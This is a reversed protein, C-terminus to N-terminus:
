AFNIERCYVLCLGTLICGIQHEVKDPQFVGPFSVEFYRYFDVGLDEPQYIHAHTAMFAEMNNQALPYSVNIYNNLEELFCDVAREGTKSNNRIQLRENEDVTM